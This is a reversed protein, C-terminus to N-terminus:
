YNKAPDPFFDCTAKEYCPNDLAFNGQLDLPNGKTFMWYAVVNTMYYHMDFADDPHPIDFGHRDGVPIYPIRLAHYGNNGKVSARVPPDIRVCTYGDKGDSLNNSDPLLGGDGFWDLRDVGELIHYDILMENATKNNWKQEPNLFDLIGAARAIEVGANIPVNLDGATPVILYKTDPYVEGLDQELNKEYDFNLKDNVFYRAYVAPDAAELIFSAINFIRRLDPSQRLYGHGKQLCILTSDKPHFAGQWVIGDYKQANFEMESGFKNIVERVNDTLGDYIRIEIPDGLEFPNEVKVPVNSNDDKMKLVPRKETATLADCSIALRFKMDAPIVADAEKGNRLNKLVVRDGPNAKDTVKIPLKKQFVVDALLFEFKLKGDEAPNGLVFPGMMPLMVAEPVGFNQSRIAVDTLGGAGSIPAVANISPEIAGLLASIFGGLSQGWAYYKRGPGGFDVHGDADFDGMLENKGDGNLDMDWYRDGNFHRLIRIFQLHDVLTQRVV